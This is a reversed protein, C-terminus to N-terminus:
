LLCWIHWGSMIDATDSPPGTSKPSGAAAWRKVHGDARSKSWYDLLTQRPAPSCNGPGDDSPRDAITSGRDCEGTGKRRGNQLMEPAGGGSTSRDDVPLSPTRADAPFPMLPWGAIAGGEHGMPSGSESWTPLLYMSLRFRTEISVRSNDRQVRSHSKRVILM